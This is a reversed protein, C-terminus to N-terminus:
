TRTHMHAAKGVSAHLLEQRHIRRTIYKLSTYTLRNERLRQLLVTIFFRNLTYIVAVVLNLHLEFNASSSILVKSWDAEYQIVCIFRQVRVTPTLVYVLRRIRRIRYQALLLM